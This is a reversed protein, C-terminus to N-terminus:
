RNDVFDVVGLEGLKNLVKYSNDRPFVISYYKITESRFM